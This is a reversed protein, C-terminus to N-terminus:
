AELLDGTEISPKCAEARLDAVRPTSRGGASPPAQCVPFATAGFDVAASPSKSLSCRTADTCGAYRPRIILFAGLWRAFPPLVVSRSNCMAAAVSSALRAHAADTRRQAQVVNVLDNDIIFM